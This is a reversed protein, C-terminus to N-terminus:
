RLAGAYRRGGRACQRFLRVPGGTRDQMLRELEHDCHVSRALLPGHLLSSGAEAVTLTYDTTTHPPPNPHAFGSPTDNEILLASM